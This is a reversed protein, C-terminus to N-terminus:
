DFFVDLVLTKIKSIKNISSAVENINATNGSNFYNNILIIEPFVGRTKMAEIACLTHSIAGLYNATIFLIPIKLSAVLDLFTTDDNIPTMIGGASEIFLFKREKAAKSIEECCFSVVDSFNIKKNERNAAINPSIPNEFRWPSIKDFNGITLDKGLVKLIRASDNKADNISFGSIIPKIVDFAIKEKHFKEGIKEIFFTKGVDTGSGVIFYIKNQM